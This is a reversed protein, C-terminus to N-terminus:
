VYGKNLNSWSMLWICVFKLRMIKSQMVTKHVCNAELSKSACQKLLWIKKPHPTSNLACGLSHPMFQISILNAKRECAVLAFYNAVYICILKGQSRLEFKIQM